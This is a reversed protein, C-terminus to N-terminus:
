HNPHRMDIQTLQKEMLPKIFTIALDFVNSHHSRPRRADEPKASFLADLFSNSHEPLWVGADILSGVARQFAWFSNEYFLHYRIAPEAFQNATNLAYLNIWKLDIQDPLDTSAAVAQAVTEFAREFSPADGYGCPFVQDPKLRHVERLVETTPTKPLKAADFDIQRLEERLEETIPLPHGIIAECRSIISQYFM